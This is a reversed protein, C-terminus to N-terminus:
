VFVFVAVVREDLEDFGPFVSIERCPALAQSADLVVCFLEALDSPDYPENVAGDCPLANSSATLETFM